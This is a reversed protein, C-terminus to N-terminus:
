QIRVVREMAPGSPQVVRITFPDQLGSTLTEVDALLALMTLCGGKEERKGHFTIELSSTTIQRDIRDLRSCLDKGIMGWFTIQLSENARISQPASISDVRIVFKEVDPGFVSCGVNSVILLAAAFAVIGSSLGKRYARRM